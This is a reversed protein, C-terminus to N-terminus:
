FFPITKAKALRRKKKVSPGGSGLQNIARHAAETGRRKLSQKVPRKHVVVDEIVDKGTKLLERGIYKGSKKAIPIISRKVIPVFTRFLGSLIGGLGRGRQIHGFHPLAVYKKGSM